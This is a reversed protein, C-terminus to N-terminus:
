QPVIFGFILLLNPIIVVATLLRITQLSAVYFLDKTASEAISFMVALGGPMVGLLTSLYERRFLLHILAALLAAGALTLLTIVGVPLLLGGLNRFVDIDTNLGITGGLLSVVIVYLKEPPNTDTRTLAQYIIVFFLSGMLGGAPIDLLIFAVSGLAGCIFLPALASPEAKERQPPFFRRDGPAKKQIRHKYAMKLVAPVLLIISFLRTLHFTNIVSVNANYSLTIINMEAIGGPIVSLYSTTAGIDSLHRLVFSSFLTLGLFWAITLLLPLFFSRETLNIIGRVRTGFYVGFISVIVSDTYTPLVFQIGLFQLATFVFIPGIIIGAPIRVRFFAYSAALSVCLFLM